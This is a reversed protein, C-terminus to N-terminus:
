EADYILTVFVIDGSQLTIPSFAGVDIVGLSSIDLLIIDNAYAGASFVRYGSTMFELTPQWGVPMTALASGPGKEAVLSFYAFLTVTNGRKVGHMSVTGDDSSFDLTEHTLHLTGDEDIIIGTASPWACVAITTYSGAVAILKDNGYCVSSWVTNEPMTFTTWTIGDTSYAATQSAAVAIFKGNCFEVTSWAQSVPLNAAAWTIGDFSYAAYNGNLGANAVFRGNGWTVGAWARSSPMTTLTWTIGDDSYAATNNNQAIAVFRKLKPSYAIAKWLASTPMSNSTWNIGDYSYASNGGSTCCTVWVGNGYALGLWQGSAPLAHETWTIGNPSTFSRSGNIDTAVFQGGGYRVVLGSSGSITTTDSSTWTIGDSSHVFKKSSNSSAVVFIGNGYTCYPAITIPSVATSWDSTPATNPYAQKVGGLVASTAVPLTYSAAADINIEANSSQNATFTGKSVGDQKITLVGDNAADPITPTGTINAYSIKPADGSTGSHLHGTSSHFRGWLGRIYRMITNIWDQYSRVYSVIANDSVTITVGADPLNAIKDTTVAATAIEPTQIPNTTFNRAVPITPKNWIFSDAGPSDELWDSQVNVEAGSAIGDLKDKLATTFNNDTHVYSSDQVFGAPKNLIEDYTYDPKSPAKAWAPVTPDTETFSQLATDAKDLSTQVASALDTYPIGGQPIQYGVDLDFEADAEANMRFQAKVVGGQKLTVLKNSVWPITPKDSLDNYSGTKAVNALDLIDAATYSPKSPAKAWAPVTPDTETTIGSPPRWQGDGHLIYGEPSYPASSPLCAPVLGTARGGRFVSVHQVGINSSSAHFFSGVSHVDYNYGDDAYRYVVVTTSNTIREWLGDEYASYFESFSAFSNDPVLVGTYTTITTIDSSNVTALGSTTMYGSLEASTPKKLKVEIRSIPPNALQTFDAELRDEMEQMLGDLWDMDVEWVGDDNMTITVGDMTQYMDVVKYWRKDGTDPDIGVWAKGQHQPSSEDMDQILYQTGPELVSVDPPLDSEKDLPIPIKLGNNLIKEILEQMARLLELVKLRYTQNDWDSLNDGLLEVVKERFFESDLEWIKVQHRKDGTGFYNSAM